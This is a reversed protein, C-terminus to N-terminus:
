RSHRIHPIPTPSGRSVLGIGSDEMAKASEEDALFKRSYQETKGLERRFARADFAGAPVAGEPEADVQPAGDARVVGANARRSRAAGKRPAASVRTGAFTASLAPSAMKSTSYLAPRLSARQRESPHATSGGTCNFL